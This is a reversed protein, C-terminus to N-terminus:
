WLLVMLGSIKLGCVLDIQLQARDLTCERESVYGDYHREYSKGFETINKVGKTKSDLEM